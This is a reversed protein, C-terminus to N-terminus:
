ASIKTNLHAQMLSVQSLLLDCAIFLGTSTSGPISTLVSAMWCCHYSYTLATFLAMVYQVETKRRCSLVSQQHTSLLDVLQRAVVAQRGVQSESGHGRGLSWPAPVGLVVSFGFGSNLLESELELDTSSHNLQLWKNLYRRDWSM